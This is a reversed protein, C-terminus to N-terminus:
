DWKFLISMWGQAGAMMLDYLAPAETYPVVHSILPKVQLEGRAIMAMITHYNRVRSWPWYPHPESMGTQYSGMVRIERRFLENSEIEVSGSTAGVLVVRGRDAAAKLLTPYIGINSSCHLQVEAGSGPPLHALAGRWRWPLETLSRITAVVDQEGAHITHTAGLRQALALREEVLDIGIVPYAGSLRCLQVTLNGIVGLGHVAVSEGIQLAAKRVGHLAVDGLIAFAAEEETLNDPVKEIMYDRFGAVLDNAKGPTVLWHTAHSGGCIVRDGVAFNTIASGVAEVRGVATYGMPTTRFQSREAESANRRRRVGNMESGASVQTVTVGVLIQDAAPDPVTYEEVQVVGAPDQVLRRGTISM